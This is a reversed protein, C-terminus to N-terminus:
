NQSISISSASSRSEQIFFTNSPTASSPLDLRIQSTSISSASSLSAQSIKMQKSAADIKKYIHTRTLCIETPPCQLLHVPVKNQHPLIAKKKNQHIAISQQLMPCAKSCFRTEWFILNLVPLKFTPRLAALLRVFPFLYPSFTYIYPYSHTHLHVPNPHM